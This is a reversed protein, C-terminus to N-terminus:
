DPHFDFWCHLRGESHVKFSLNLEVVVKKQYHFLKNTM